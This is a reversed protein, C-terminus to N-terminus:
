EAMGRKHLKWRGDPQERYVFDRRAAAHWKYLEHGVGLFDSLTKIIMWVKEDDDESIGSKERGEAYLIAMSAKLLRCAAANKAVDRVIGDRM